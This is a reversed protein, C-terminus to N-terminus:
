DHSLMIHATISLSVHLPFVFCVFIISSPREPDCSRTTLNWNYTDLASHLARIGPCEAPIRGWCETVSISDCHHLCNRSPLSGEFVGCLLEHGAIFSGFRVPCPFNIQCILRASRYRGPGVCVCVCVPLCVPLCAINFSRRSHQLYNQPILNVQLRNIRAGAGGWQRANFYDLFAAYFCRWIAM